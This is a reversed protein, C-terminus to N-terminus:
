LTLLPLIIIIMIIIIILLLFLRLLFLLLFHFVVVAALASSGVGNASDEAKERGLAQCTDGECSRKGMGDRISGEGQEALRGGKLEDEDTTKSVGSQGAGYKRPKSLKGGSGRPLVRRLFWLKTPTDEKLGEKHATRSQGRLTHFPYPPM